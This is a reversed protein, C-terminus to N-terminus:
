HHNKKPDLYYIQSQSLNNYLSIDYKMECNFLDDKIDEILNYDLFSPEFHELYDNENLNLSHNEKFKFNIDPYEHGIEKEYAKKGPEVMLVKIKENM